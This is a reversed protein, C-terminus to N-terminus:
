RRRKKGRSVSHATELERFVEEGDLGEGRDLSVLGEAIKAKVDHIRRGRIREAAELL